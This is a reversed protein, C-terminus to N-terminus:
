RYTCKMPVIINRNQSYKVRLRYKATTRLMKKRVVEIASAVYMRYGKAGGRKIGIQLIVIVVVLENIRQALHQAGEGLAGLEAVVGVRGHRAQVETPGQDYSTREEKRNAM